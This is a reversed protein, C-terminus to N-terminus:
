PLPLILLQSNVVILRLFPCPCRLGCITIGDPCLWLDWKSISKVRFLSNKDKIKEKQFHYNATETILGPPFFSGTTPGLRVTRTRAAGGFTSV